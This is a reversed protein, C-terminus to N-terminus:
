GVVVYDVAVGSCAWGIVVVTVTEEIIVSSSETRGVVDDCISSIEGDFSAEAAKGLEVEIIYAATMILKVNM